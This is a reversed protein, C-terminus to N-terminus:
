STEPWPCLPGNMAAAGGFMPPFGTSGSVAASLDLISIDDELPGPGPVLDWREDSPYTGVDTNIHRVPAVFTALDAINLRDTSEPLSGSIFDNPWADTGCADQDLGGAGGFIHDEAEGAFGDGDCDYTEAGPPLPEDVESDGDDDTGSFVADTREPIRGSHLPDSGCATETTNLLNDGDAEPDEGNPVEDGDIDSDCADGEGDADYDTQDANPVTPCNDAPDGVGDDDSDQIIGCAMDTVGVAIWSDRTSTVQQSEAGFLAEAAAEGALRADCFTGDPQLSAFGLFAIQEADALGIGTVNLDNDQTDLLDSCHAASHTGPDACSANLGGNVLLYYAHNPIASNIHVGGNDETTVFYESYHDPNFDEEPDAMNRFGPVTDANLTIDEGIWWDACAVQGTAKTCNSSDPEAAAFEASSGLIDSFSENLAGPENEYILGSTCDTVGHAQEHAVIDLAGSYERRTVGNGDGYVTFTGNWFANNYSEDFHAVSLMATYGCDGIWDLGFASLLYDDTVNAYYHADVLAPQGPSEGFFTILDWVDDADTAPFQITLGNEADYTAQRVDASVLDYHPGVAGHGANDFVTLGTLDKTDGKVGTGEGQAIADFSRVIRGTEADVYHFWRSSVGRSEVQFLYRKSWPDLVLHTSRSAAAGTESEAALEAARPTRLVRNVPQVDPYHAGIVASAMGSEDRLITVEGGLVTALGYDQQYREYTIGSAQLRMTQSLRMDSPINFGAAEAGSLARFGSADPSISAAPGSVVVLALAIVPVAILIARM